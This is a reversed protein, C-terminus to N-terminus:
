LSASQYELPAVDSRYWEVFDVKKRRAIPLETGNKILVKLNYKSGPILEQIFCRNVIYKKHLRYFYSSPLLELCDGIGINITYKTKRQYSKNLFVNTLPGFAEFKLIDKTNLSLTVGNSIPLAIKSLEPGQERNSYEKMKENMSHVIARQKFKDLSKQIANKLKSVSQHIPKLLFQIAGLEIALLANNIDKSIVILEMSVQYRDRLTLFQFVENSVNDIDVVLILPSDTLDIQQYVEEHSVFKDVFYKVKLNNFTYVAREIIEQSSIDKCFIGLTKISNQNPQLIQNMFLM